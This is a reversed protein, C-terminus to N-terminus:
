SSLQLQHDFLIHDVRPCPARVGTHDVRPCPVVVINSKPTFYIKTHSTNEEWRPKSRCIRRRPKIACFYEMPGRRDRSPGDMPVSSEPSSDLVVIKFAERSGRSSGSVNKSTTLPKLGGWRFIPCDGCSSSCSQLVFLGEWPSPLLFNLTCKGDRSSSLPLRNRWCSCNKNTNATHDVVLPSSQGFLIHDVRPCPARVGNQYSCM